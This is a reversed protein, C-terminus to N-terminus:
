AKVPLSAFADAVPRPARHFCGQSHDVGKERLTTV